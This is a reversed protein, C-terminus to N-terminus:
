ASFKTSLLILVGVGVFLYALPNSTASFNTDKRMVRPHVFPSLDSVSRNAGKFAFRRCHGSGIPRIAIHLLCQFRHDSYAAGERQNGAHFHVREHVSLPQLHNCISKIGAGISFKASCFQLAHDDQKVAIPGVRLVLPKMRLGRTFTTCGVLVGRDVVEHLLAVSAPGEVMLAATTRLANTRHASVIKKFIKNFLRFLVYALNDHILRM